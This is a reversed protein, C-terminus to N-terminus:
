PRSGSAGTNGGSSGPNSSNGPVGGWPSGYSGWPRTYHGYGGGWPSGYGGFPNGYGGYGSINGPRVPPRPPAVTAEIRRRRGFIRRMAIFSILMMALIFFFILFISAAYSSGDLATPAAGDETDSVGYIDYLRETMAQTFREVGAGYNGAAFDAELYQSLMDGIDGSPLSAELGRGQVCWYNDEGVALLLLLGDNREADGLGWENFLAYAYDEIETGDLFDFVAVVMQAGCTHELRYLAQNLRDETAADIAQAYDAVYYDPAPPLNLAYAPRSCCLMLLLLWLVAWRKM